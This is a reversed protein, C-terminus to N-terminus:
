TKRPGTPMHAWYMVANEVITAGNDADFWAGLARYGKTAEMDGRVSLLVTQYNAPMTLGNAIHWTIVEQLREREDRAAQLSSLLEDPNM